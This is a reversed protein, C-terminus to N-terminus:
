LSRTHQGNLPAGATHASTTPISPTQRCGRVPVAIHAVRLAPGITHYPHYPYIPLLTYPHYPRYGRRTACSRHQPIPSILIHTSPYIPSIPSIRSVYRLVKTTTHTIHTYQHYPSIHSTHTFPHCPTLFCRILLAVRM